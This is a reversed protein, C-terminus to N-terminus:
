FYYKQSGSIEQLFLYLSPSGFFPGLNKNESVNNTPNVSAQCRNLNNLFKNINKPTNKKNNCNAEKQTAKIIVAPILINKPM